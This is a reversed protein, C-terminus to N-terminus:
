LPDYTRGAIARVKAASTIHGYFKFTTRIDSHGLLESLQGMDGGAELFNAAFSHRLWHFSGAFGLRKLHRSFMKTVTDGNAPSAVEWVLFGSNAREIYPAYDRAPINKRILDPLSPSLRIKNRNEIIGSLGAPIPLDRTKLGKEQIEIMLGGGAQHVNNINANLVGGVRAGTLLSFMVAFYHWSAKDQKLHQDIATQEAKTFYRAGAAKGIPGPVLQGIFPNSDIYGENVLQTFAPSCHRIYTNISGVAAGTRAAENKFYTISQKDIQSVNVNGLFLFLKKLSQERAKFTKASVGNIPSDIRAKLSQLYRECFELLSEDQFGYGPIHDAPDNDGAAIANKKGQYIKRATPLDCSLTVTKMKGNSLYYWLQPNRDKYERLYVRKVIM